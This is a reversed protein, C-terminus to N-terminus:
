SPMSAAMDSKMAKKKMPHKAGDKMPADACAKAVDGNVSADGRKEGMQTATRDKCDRTMKEAHKSMPASASQASAAGAGVMLFACMAAAAITKM